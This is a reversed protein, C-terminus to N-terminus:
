LQVGPQLEAEKDQFSASPLEPSHSESLLKKLRNYSFESIKCLIRDPSFVHCNESLFYSLLITWESDLINTM